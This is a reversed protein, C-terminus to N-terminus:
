NAAPPAHPGPVRQDGQRRTIGAADLREVIPVVFKRSSNLLTRIEAVTLPGRNRLATTVAQVLEEWRRQELWIGDAIRVLRGRTIALDVLERLRKDNKPTRCRLESIDPPQFAGAHFERLAEDLLAQDSPPLAGSHGPPVIHEEALVVHEHQLFWDALAVRFRPPCARPMWQPWESRPVGAARPNATLHTALRRQLDSILGNLHTVHVQLRQSATELECIVKRDLLSRLMRTGEDADSLGALAALWAASPPKWASYQVVEETRERSTGDLLVQLGAPDPPRRHTWRRAVPRLVFGGGLTRKASEDRLIFHQRWTAVIPQAVKLQGFVRACQESDPKQALRLEALVDSTAVHLRLRINQKPLKGPMRLRTLYVELTNSAVLYGPSALECGRAVEDHAVGALNVALRMRGSTTERADYHTQLDRVRVARPGPWLELEVDRQIQGHAVSGTVVTGRGPVVFARDIPLRFWRYPARPQKSARAVHLLTARLEALGAGTEASTRVCALPALDLAALLTEAEAQVEDAWEDDVLDMKTLVLVCREVGLLALLEAHERTQPMVSDDAAVVLLAVDVGTAGAVMNRIFREHGPVDVFSIDCDEWRAHAFGLDITMGRAREEPLRDPDTGTLALVLRSKGHDIHGATGVVLTSRDSM